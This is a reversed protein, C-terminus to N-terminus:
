TSVFINFYYYKLIKCCVSMGAVQRTVFMIVCGNMKRPAHEMSSISRNNRLYEYDMMGM